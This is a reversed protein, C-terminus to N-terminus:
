ENLHSPDSHCSLFFILAQKMLLYQGSVKSQILSLDTLEHIPDSWDSKLMAETQLLTERELINVLYRRTVLVTLQPANIPSPSIAICFISFTLVLFDSSQILVPSITMENVKRSSDDPETHRDLELNSM